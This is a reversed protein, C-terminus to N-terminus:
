RTKEVYTNWGVTPRVEVPFPRFADSVSKESEGGLVFACVHDPGLAQVMCAHDIYADVFQLGKKGLTDRSLMESMEKLHKPERGPCDQAKHRQMAIFLM